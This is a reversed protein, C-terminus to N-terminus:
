AIRRQDATRIGSRWQIAKGAAIGNNRASEDAMVSPKATKVHPHNAWMFQAVAKDERVAIATVRADSQKMAEIDDKMRRLIMSVAGLGFNQVWTWRKKNGFYGQLAFDDFALREIEHILYCSLYEVLERDSSRGILQMRNGAYKISTCGNLKAIGHILAGKWLMYTWVGQKQTIFAESVPSPAADQNEVEFMSLKHELMLTQARSAALAAEHQNSSHSLSLLKRVKNLISSNLEKNEM